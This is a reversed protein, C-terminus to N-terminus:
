MTTMNQPKGPLEDPSSEVQLAPCWPEIGPDLCDGQLLSLSSVGINKGPSDEHVSSGPPSCDMLQLSNSVVSPSLM